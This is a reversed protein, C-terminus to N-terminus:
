KESRQWGRGLALVRDVAAEAQARGAPNTIWLSWCLQLSLTLFGGQNSLILSAPPSVHHSDLPGSVWVDSEVHELPVSVIGAHCDVHLEDRGSLCSPEPLKARIARSWISAWAPIFRPAGPCQQILASRIWTRMGDPVLEPVTEIVEATYLTDLRIGQAIQQKRLLWHSRPPVRSQHTYFDEDRCAIFLEWALSELWGACLAEAASLALDTFQLDSEDDQPERELLFSAQPEEYAYTDIVM